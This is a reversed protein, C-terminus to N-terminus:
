APPAVIYAEVTVVNRAENIIPQALIHMTQLAAYKGGVELMVRTNQGLIPGIGTEQIYFPLGDPTTTGYLYIEPIQVPTVSGVTRLLATIPAAFGALVTGNFYPGTVTGSVLPEIIRNGGQLLPIPDLPRGVPARM